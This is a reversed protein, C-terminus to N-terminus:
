KTLLSNIFEFSQLGIGFGVGIFIGVILLSLLDEIYSSLKRNLM